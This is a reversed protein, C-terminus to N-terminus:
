LNEGKFQMYTQTKSFDYKDPSFYSYILEPWTHIQIDPIQKGKNDFAVINGNACLMLKKVKISKM